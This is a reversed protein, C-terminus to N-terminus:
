DTDKKEDVDIAVPEDNDDIGPENKGQRRALKENAKEKKKQERKFKSFTHMDKKAM